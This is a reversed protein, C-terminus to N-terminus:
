AISWYTSIFDSLSFKGLHFALLFVCCITTLGGSRVLSHAGGSFSSGMGYDETDSLWSAAAEWVVSDLSFPSVQEQLYVGQLAEWVSSLALLLPGLPILAVPLCSFWALSECSHRPSELCTM